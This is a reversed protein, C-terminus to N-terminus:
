KSNWSRSISRCLYSRSARLWRPAIRV